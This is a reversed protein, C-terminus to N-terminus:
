DNTEEVSLTTKITKIPECQEIDFDDSFTDYVKKKIQTVPLIWYLKQKLQCIFVLKFSLVINSNIKRLRKDNKCYIQILSSELALFNFYIREPLIM